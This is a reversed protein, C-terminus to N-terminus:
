VVQKWSVRNIANGIVRRTVGYKEALDNHSFNGTRYLMRAQRVKAETLKANTHASGYAPFYRGKKIADNINDSNTGLFLHAPNVCGPIDCRHLVWLGDPIGGNHLIWSVRHAPWDKGLIKVKGYGDKTIVGTWLWCENESGKKVKEWFLEAYSKHWNHRVESMDITIMILPHCIDVMGDVSKM